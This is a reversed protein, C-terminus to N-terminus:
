AVKKNEKRLCIKSLYEYCQLTCKCDELSNHLKYNLGILKMCDELSILKYSQYYCDWEGKLAAFGKMVDLYECNIESELSHEIMRLDFRINYGVILKYKSMLDIIERKYDQIPICTSVLEPSIHHISEAKKWVRKRNPKFLASFIVNEEGDIMSLQLIEDKYMSLGTTECDIILIDKKSINQSDVVADIVSKAELMDERNILQYIRDYVDKQNFNTYEAIHDFLDVIKFYDNIGSLRSDIINYEKM